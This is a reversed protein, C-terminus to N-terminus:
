FTGPQVTPLDRIPQPRQWATKMKLRKTGIVSVIDVKLIVIRDIASRERLTPPFALEHLEYTLLGDQQQM